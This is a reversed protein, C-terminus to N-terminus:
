KKSSSRKEVINKPEPRKALELEAKTRDIMQFLADPEFQEVFPQSITKDSVVFVTPTHGVGVRQGLKFDETVKAALLGKPDLNDPLPPQKQEDIFRQSMGLLNKKNISKQNLFVWHRYAEGLKPSRTDLYRAIVHADFSWEHFPLSFDHRVLAVGKEAQAQMLIPEAHACDPCQLDEFVIVAISSGRPPRLASTDQAFAAATLLALLLAWRM